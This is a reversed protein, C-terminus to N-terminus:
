EPIILVFFYIVCLVLYALYFLIIKTVVVQNLMPNHFCKMNSQQLLLQLPRRM